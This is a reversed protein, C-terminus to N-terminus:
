FAYDASNVSTNKHKLVVSDADVISLSHEKYQVLLFYQM